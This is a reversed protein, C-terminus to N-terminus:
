VAINEGAIRFWLSEKKLRTGQCDPCVAHNMYNTVWSRTSTTKGEEHQEAIFNVIGTFEIAYGRHICQTRLRLIEETGYM